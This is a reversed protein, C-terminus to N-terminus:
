ARYRDFSRSLHHGLVRPPNERSFDPHLDTCRDVSGPVAFLIAVPQEFIHAVHNNGLAQLQPALAAIGLIRDGRPSELAHASLLRGASYETASRPLTLAARAQM